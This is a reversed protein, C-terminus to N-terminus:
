HPVPLLQLQMEDRSQPLYKCRLFVTRFDADMEVQQIAYSKLRDPYQRLNNHWMGGTIPAIDPLMATQL